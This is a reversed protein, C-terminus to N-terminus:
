GTWARRAVGAEEIIHRRLRLLFIATMICFVGLILAALILFIAFGALRAGMAAIVVLAGISAVLWRLLVARSALAHNPVRLALREFYIYKAFEGVMGSIALITGFAILGLPTSSLIPIASALPCIAICVRAVKRAIVDRESIGSPDPETILWAGYFAIASAIFQLLRLALGDGFILWASVGVILGLWM